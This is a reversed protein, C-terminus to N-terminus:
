AAHGEKRIKRIMFILFAIALVSLIGYFIMLEM